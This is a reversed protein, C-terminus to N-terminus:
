SRKPAPRRIVALVREALEANIGPVATLEEVTAEGIRRVSGFTTLLARRKAPGVGAVDDLASRLRKKSRVERHFMIAFRHAEDRVQQLLFLANSNRRLSVPNSRGPRFVREETHVVDASKGDGRVRDKAISALEVGEVGLESVAEVAMALQGRGGDVMILDPLGGEALGRKLRRSLVEKMAAFDDNRQVGRLKYRRYGDKDPRGEDFAVMSAVVADGQVHSIDFCEIRKPVSALGLRRRLEELMKERRATEDSREAFAHEANELAMEVLRRRQGRQPAAVVVRRGRLDSLYERLTEAGEVDFPLLIEDPVFTNAEYFRGLLSSLVEEDPLEHDEFQYGKNGVLKGARILLAQAEIFGGERYLGFVDRNGGGHVVVKQKEAIKSIAAIRDRYVAAEEFQDEGSARRMSEALDALLKETKGELLQMAARLQREYEDRDVELVCPALCRKIQYELCPRSRNRFVADSCTRLPFIKRATNMTERIGSASAFPGLYTHGDRVIKRTVVIRPWEDKTTVKVSVYSKDDRLKINYRPKYQKILNNELILAETDTATVLTEVDTARQMLFLVNFRGDGGRMYSRVRDRLSKAKGVYIVKKRKDKFLYVGPRSPIKGVKERLAQRVAEEARAAKEEASEEPPKDAPEPKPDEPM